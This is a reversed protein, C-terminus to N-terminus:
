TRVIFHNEKSPNARRRIFNPRECHQFVIHLNHRILTRPIKNKSVVQKWHEFIKNYLIKRYHPISTHSLDRELSDSLLMGM